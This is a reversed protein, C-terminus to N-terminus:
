VRRWVEVPNATFAPALGALDADKFTAKEAWDKDLSPFVADLRSVLTLWGRVSQNVVIQVENGSPEPPLGFALCLTGAGNIYRTYALVLQVQNWNVDAIINEGQQVQFGDPGVAIIADSPTLTRDFTSSSDPM